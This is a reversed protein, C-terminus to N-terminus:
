GGGLMVWRGVDGVEGGVVQLELAKQRGGAEPVKCKSNWGGPISKGRRGGM